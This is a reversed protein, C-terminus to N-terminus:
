AEKWRRAWWLLSDYSKKWKETLTNWHHTSRSLSNKSHTNGRSQYEYHYDVLSNWQLRLQVWLYCIFVKLVSPWDGLSLDSSNMGVMYHSFAYNMFYSHKRIDLGVYFDVETDKYIQYKHWVERKSWRFPWFYRPLIPFLPLRPLRQEFLVLPKESFENLLDTAWSPAQYKQGLILIKCSSFLQYHLESFRDGMLSPWDEVWILDVQFDGINRFPNLCHRPGYEDRLERRRQSSTSIIIWSLSPYQNLIGERLESHFSEKRNKVILTELTM